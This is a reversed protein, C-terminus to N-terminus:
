GADLTALRRRRRRHIRLLWLPLRLPPYLFGLPKPLPLTLADDLSAAMMRWQALHFALGRGRLFQPRLL